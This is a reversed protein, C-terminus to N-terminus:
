KDEILDHVTKTKQDREQHLVKISNRLHRNFTLLIDLALAVPSFFFYASFSNYIGQCTVPCVNTHPPIPKHPVGFLPSGLENM